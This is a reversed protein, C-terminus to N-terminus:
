GGIVGGEAQYVSARGDSSPLENLLCLDYAWYSVARGFQRKHVTM